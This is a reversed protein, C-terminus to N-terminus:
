GAPVVDGVAEVASVPRVLVVLVALALAMGAPMLTAMALADVGLM